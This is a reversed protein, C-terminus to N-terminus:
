QAQAVMLGMEEEEEDEVPKACPSLAPMGFSCSKPKPYARFSSM